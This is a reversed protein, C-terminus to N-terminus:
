ASDETPCLMTEPPLFVYLKEIELHSLAMLVGSTQQSTAQLSSTALAATDDGSASM